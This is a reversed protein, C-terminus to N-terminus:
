PLLRLLSLPLHNEHRVSAGAMTATDMESQADFRNM